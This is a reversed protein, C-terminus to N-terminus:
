KPEAFSQRVRAVSLRKRLDSILDFHGVPHLAVMRKGVKSDQIKSPLISEDQSTSVKPISQESVLSRTSVYDYSSDLGKDALPSGRSKESVPDLTRSEFKPINGSSTMQGNSKREFEASEREVHKRVEALVGAADSEGDVPKELTVEFTQDHLHSVAAALASTWQEREATTACIFSIRRMGYHEDGIRRIDEKYKGIDNFEIEFGKSRINYINTVAKLPIWSKLLKVDSKVIVFADNFLAIIRTKSAKTLHEWNIKGGARLRMVKEKSIGVLLGYRDESNHVKINGGFAEKEIEKLVKVREIENCEVDIAELVVRLRHVIRQIESRMSVDGIQMLLELCTVYSRLRNMPQEMLAILSFNTALEQQKMFSIFAKAAKKSKVLSRLLSLSLEQKVMFQTYLQDFKPILQDFTEILSKYNIEKEMQNFTSLLIAHPEYFESINRFLATITDEHLPLSAEMKKLTKKDTKLLESVHKAKDLETTKAKLPKVYLDKLFFIVTNVYSDESKQLFKIIGQPSNHTSLTSADLKEILKEDNEMFIRCASDDHHIVRLMDRKNMSVQRNLHVNNKNKEM